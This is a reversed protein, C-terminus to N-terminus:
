DQEMQEDIPKQSFKHINQCTPTKDQYINKIHADDVTCHACFNNQCFECYYITPSFMECQDCANNLHLYRCLKGRYCREGYRCMKPHRQSCNKLWCTGTKSYIECTTKAHFFSCSESLRCYGKNDFRCQKIELKPDGIQKEKADENKVVELEDIHNTLVILNNDILKIKNAIVDREAELISVEDSIINEKKTLDEIKYNLTAVKDNIKNELINLKEEYMAFKQEFTQEMRTVNKSLELCKRALMRKENKLKEITESMRHDMNQSDM